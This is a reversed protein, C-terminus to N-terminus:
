ADTAMNPTTAAWGTGGLVSFHTLPLSDSPHIRFTGGAKTMAAIDVGIQEVRAKVTDL